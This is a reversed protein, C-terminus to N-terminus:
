EKVEFLPALGQAERERDRKIAAEWDDDGPSWEPAFDAIHDALAVGEFLPNGRSPVGWRKEWARRLL